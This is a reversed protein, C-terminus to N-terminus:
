TVIDWFARRAADRDSRPVLPFTELVRDFQVRDLRYLKAALAQLRAQLRLAAPNLSLAASLAALEVFAEAAHAPRPMPLRDIVAASVHTGVRLRVLYNAVFSNFMACLYRQAPEDLPDKLCFLTHTTVCGAPVIAAILTLRNSSSAVDRYALRARGFTRSVDLLREAVRPAIRFPTSGVDVAFPTVNKGAIV